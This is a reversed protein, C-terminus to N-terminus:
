NQCASRTLRKVTDKSNSEKLLKAV